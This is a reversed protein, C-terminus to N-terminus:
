QQYPDDYSGEVLLSRKLAKYAWWQYAVIALHILSYLATWFLFPTSGIAMLVLHYISTFAGFLLLYTLAETASRTDFVQALGLLAFLMMAYPVLSRLASSYSEFDIGFSTDLGVIISALGFVVCVIGGSVRLHLPFPALEPENEM